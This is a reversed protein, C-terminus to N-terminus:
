IVRFVACLLHEFAIVEHEKHLSLELWTWATQSVRRGPLCLTVQCAQLPVTCFSGFIVESAVRLYGVRWM